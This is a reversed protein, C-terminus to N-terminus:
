CGTGHATAFSPGSCGANTGPPEAVIRILKKNKNKTEKKYDSLVIHKDM